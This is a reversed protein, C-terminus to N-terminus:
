PRSHIAVSARLELRGASQNQVIGGHDKDIEVKSVENRTVAQERRLGTM